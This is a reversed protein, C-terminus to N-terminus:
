YDTPKKAGTVQWAHCDNLGTKRIIEVLPSQITVSRSYSSMTISSQLWVLGDGGPIKM